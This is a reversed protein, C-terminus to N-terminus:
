DLKQGTMREISKLTGKRLERHIPITVTRGDAHHGVVHDGKGQRFAFGLKELAKQADKGSIPM